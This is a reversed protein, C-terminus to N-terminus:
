NSKIVVRCPHDYIESGGCANRYVARRVNDVEDKVGLTAQWTLCQLIILVGFLLSARNVSIFTLARRFM